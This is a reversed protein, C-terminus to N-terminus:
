SSRVDKSTPQDFLNFTESYSFLTMTKILPSVTM